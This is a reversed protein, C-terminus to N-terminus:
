LFYGDNFFIYLKKCTLIRYYLVLRSNVSLCAEFQPHWQVCLLQTINENMSGLLSKEKELTSRALQSTM